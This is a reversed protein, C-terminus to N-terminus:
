PSPSPLPQLAAGAATVAERAPTSGSLAARLMENLPRWVAPNTVGGVLATAQEAAAIFPAGTPDQVGRDVPLLTGRAALTEQASREAMYRLFGQAATRQDASTVPNLCLVQTLLLPHPAEGSPPAPLATVGVAEAGWLQAYKARQSSWDIVSWARGSQVVADVASYDASALVQPDAQLSQLWELWAVSADAGTGAFSPQGDEGLVAGGFSALYPLTTELMLYYALSYPRQEPPAEREASNLALVADFSAPPEAGRRKDYYLVLTDFSLPVGYLQDGVRVSDLAQPLMESLLASDVIQELPAVYQQEALEAVYRGHTLLLQPASDDAVSANYRRLMEPASQAELRVRVDPNAREYSRALRNLLQLKDGSWSHWVTLIVPSAQRQAAPSIASNPASGTTATCASLLVLALLVCCRLLRARRSM